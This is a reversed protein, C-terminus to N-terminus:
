HTRHSTQHMWRGEAAWAHGTAPESIHIVKLGDGLAAIAASIAAVLDGPIDAEAEATRAAAVPAAPASVTKTRAAAAEAAQREIESREIWGLLRGLGSIGVWLCTGAGIVALGDVVMEISM